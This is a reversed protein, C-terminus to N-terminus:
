IATGEAELWTTLQDIAARAMRKDMVLYHKLISHVTELSHGTVARIQMATCGSLALRTVATDRLDLFTKARIEPLEKAAEDRVRGWVRSFGDGTYPEGAEDLVVHRREISIVRRLARRRRIADLRSRLPPSAPVSVRAGRKSQRFDIWGDDRLQPLEMALVDGRRQGTHLAIIFADGVSLLGMRDAAAVTIAIEDDTWMVTRAEVGDLGLGKAPNATLWGRKVAYSLALRVVALVGNGMPHGRTACLTEWWGFLHSPRIAAVPQEGMEALWVGAKSTYDARTSERLKERWRTSQTYAAWVANCDLGARAIGRPRRRPQAGAGRWAAVDSNLEAAAAIAAELGLWDGSESKLDRGHIGRARLGPGPEWRPRGERWKFYPPYPSTKKRSM